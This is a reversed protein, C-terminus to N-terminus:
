HEDAMKRLDIYQYLGVNQRALEKLRNGRSSEPGIGFQIVNIQIPGSTRTIRELQAASIDDKPDGDTLLFIVDPRSKIAALLAREHDTGGAPTMSAIFNKAAEKNDDTAYILREARDAPPYVKPTENYFVVILQHVSKLSDLSRILEAKAERIPKGGLESMSASRDFVYAFKHGTGQTGFVGVTAESGTGPRGRTTGIKEQVRTPPSSGETGSLMSTPGLVNKEIKPLFQNLQFAAESQTSDSAFDWDNQTTESQASQTQESTEASKSSSADNEARFTENANQYVSGDESESKLVIGVSESREAGPAGRTQSDWRILFFLVFLAVVHFLLSGAWAPISSKPM